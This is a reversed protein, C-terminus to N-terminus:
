RQVPRDVDSLGAVAFFGEIRDALAMALHDQQVQGHRHHIAVLHEGPDAGFAQLGLHHHDGAVDLFFGLAADM